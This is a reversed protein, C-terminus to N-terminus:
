IFLKILNLWLCELIELAEQKTFSGKEIDRQYYAIFINIWEGPFSSANFEMHLIVFLFWLACRKM